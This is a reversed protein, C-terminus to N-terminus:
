EIFYALSSHSKCVIRPDNPWNKNVFILKNLNESQLHCRRLSILTGVLSFIKEIEIQFGVMGLIQRACFGITHFM